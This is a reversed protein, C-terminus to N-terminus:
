HVYMKNYAYAQLIQTPRGCFTHMSGSQIGYGIKCDQLSYKFQLFGTM